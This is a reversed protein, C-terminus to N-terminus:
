AGVGGQADVEALTRNGPIPFPGAYARSNNQRAALDRLLQSGEPTLCLALRVDSPTTPEPM